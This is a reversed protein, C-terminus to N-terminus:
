IAGERKLWEVFGRVQARLLEYAEDRAASLAKEFAEELARSRRDSEGPEENTGKFMPEMISDWAEKTRPVIVPDYFLGYYWRKRAQREIQSRVYRAADPLDYGYTTWHWRGREGTREDFVEFFGKLVGGLAEYNSSGVFVVAVRRTPDALGVALTTPEEDSDPLIRSEETGDRKKVVLRKRRTITVEDVVVERESLDVGHRKMEDIIVTLAESETLYLPRSLSPSGDFGKGDGHMFLPAVRACGLRAAASAGQAKSETAGRDPEAGWPRVVGCGGIQVVLLAAVLLILWVRGRGPVVLGELFM